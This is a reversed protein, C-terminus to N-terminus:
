SQGEVDLHRSDPIKAIASHVTAAVQGVPSELSPEPSWIEVADLARVAFTSTPRTARAAAEDRLAADRSTTTPYRFM